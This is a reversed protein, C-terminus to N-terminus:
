PVQLNNTICAPCVLRSCNPTSSLKDLFHHAVQASFVKKNSTSTILKPTDNWTKPLKFFPLRAIQDTRYRPIFFDDDNRLTRDDNDRNHRNTSWTDHFATPIYNYVYSHFFKLNCHTILDNLPLISLAKFLPETHDNYKKKAIIRIAAKQKTILPQLLSPTTSSWIELAYTLHSHFLSYYLTKLYKESFINKASRLSYLAHSLKKSVQSIHYKFNLNQDFFVGLYKIAPIKDSPTVRHLEFIRSAENQNINNNNIFIKRNCNASSTPSILLYKTKDPHLSLKNERFFNCLKQFENNVFDYLEDLNENSATLATDDAFLISLLKTSLPLDNIYLLFLLPGLISGQPVGTLITLLMSDISDISVFQQRDTLYSKFWSLETNRIGLKHLKKLLIKHNCTDFAKKLDCFIIISHKKDNLATTVKNLLLTMPHTTSHGSRFGFQQPTILNHTDLYNTLRTQVIKELIKSFSSLLSIPRYNNIDSADATKYIPIVKAIKLKTPVIGTALSCTFIHILPTLISYKIKKILNTSFGAMDPTKKDELQEICTLIEDSTVPVNSM